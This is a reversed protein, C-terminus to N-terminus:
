PKGRGSAVEFKSAFLFAFIRGDATADGADSITLETTKTEPITPSIELSPPQSEPLMNEVLEVLKCSV